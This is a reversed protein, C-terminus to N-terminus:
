ALGGAAPPTSATVCYARWITQYAAEIQRAFRAGDMLPSAALRGRLTRRLDALRPLDRALAVAAATFGADTDTALDALGIQHL